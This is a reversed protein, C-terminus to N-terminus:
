IRGTMRHRLLIAARAPTAEVELAPFAKLDRFALAALATLPRLPKAFLRRELSRGAAVLLEASARDNCHRAADAFAFAAGAEGLEQESAGLLRAAIAFLRRGREAIVAVQAEDWPPEDLLATWGAELAALHHGSIGRPLLESAVAQLRPEAPPPSTDLRELAERWWALRIAGLAPESTTRVVEALADDIAFLADFAPRLAVPWYLRVLARDTM